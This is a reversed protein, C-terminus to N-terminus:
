HPSKVGRGIQQHVAKFLASAARALGPDSSEIPKALFASLLGDQLPCSTMYRYIKGPIQWILKIARKKTEDVPFACSDRNAVGHRDDSPGVQSNGFCGDLSDGGSHYLAAEISRYMMQAPMPAKIKSKIWPLHSCVISLM